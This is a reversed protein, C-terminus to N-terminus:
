KMVVMMVGEASPTKEPPILTGLDICKEIMGDLLGMATMSVLLSYEGMLHKPVYKKIYKYMEDVVSEVLNDTESVFGNIIDDLIDDGYLSVESESVLIKPYLTDNEQYIYGSEIAKAAPEKETESLSSMPLGNISKITLILQEDQSIDHGCHFHEKIRRGCINSM